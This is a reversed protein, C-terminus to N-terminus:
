NDRVQENEAQTKGLLLWAEVNEPEKKVATEFCLVASPFDGEELLQKGRELPNTVDFMPNEDSFVYDKQPIYYDNYEDLWPHADDESNSVKKMEEQLKDWFKTNFEDENNKVHEDAWTDAQNQIKDTSEVNFYENSWAEAEQETLKGETLNVDGDEVNKM